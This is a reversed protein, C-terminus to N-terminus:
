LAYVFIFLFVWVVDVFHWYWAGAEYAFHNEPTFHGKSCRISLIILFITGVTVHLGHFGTLMFFTSGYIGSGLTLGLDQYAHVYELAQLGLFIIGLAATIWTFLILTPRNKEILAHHAITLTWSSTLLIATNIAPLGWAGMTEFSAKLGQKAEEPTITLPWLAQFGPWEIVSTMAKHGDVGEGGLWPLAFTRIYWLAGFFAAFFMVESTIFWLMGYRFSRDMQHSYLGNMSERITASWWSWMMYILVAIGATMIWGGMSGFPGPTVVDTTNHIFNGAGFVTLFLGVSGIFPLKSQEPVYYKTTKETM